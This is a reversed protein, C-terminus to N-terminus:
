VRSPVGGEALKYYNQKYIDWLQWRAESNDGLPLLMNCVTRYRPELQKRMAAFSGYGFAAIAMSADDGAVETIADRLSREWQDFSGARMLTDLLLHEFDMPSQLYGFCGDTASILICPRQNVDLSFAPDKLTFQGDASLVNTMAGDNYLNSMADEGSLDDVSVQLLGIDSLIYNRSDGASISTAKLIGQEVEVLWLAATTPILRVMSGRFKSEAADAQGVCVRFHSILQQKLRSTDFPSGPDQSFWDMAAGAATRSALYAGTKGQLKPYVTAGLGGCGDFVGMLGAQENFSYCWSDEGRSPIKETCFGGHTDLYRFLSM